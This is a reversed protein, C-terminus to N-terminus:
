EEECAVEKPSYATLQKWSDRIKFFLNRSHEKTLHEYAPTQQNQKKEKMKGPLHSLSPSNKLCIGKQWM